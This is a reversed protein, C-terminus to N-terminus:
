AGDTSVSSFTFIWETYKELNEPSEDLDSQEHSLPGCQSERPANDHSSIGKSEPVLANPRRLNPIFAKIKGLERSRLQAHTASEFADLGLDDVEM